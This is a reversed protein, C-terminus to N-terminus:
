EEKKMDACFQVCLHFNGADCHNHDSMGHDRMWKEIMVWDVLLGPSEYFCVKHDNITAFALLLSVPRKCLYGITEFYGQDESKWYIKWNWQEWLLQRETSTAEVFYETTKLKEIM